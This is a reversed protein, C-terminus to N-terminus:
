KDLYSSTTMRKAVDSNEKTVIASGDDTETIRFNVNTKASFRNIDARLNLFRGCIHYIQSEGPPIAGLAFKSKPPINQKSWEKKDVSDPIRHIQFESNKDYPTHWVFVFNAGSTKEAFHSVARWKVEDHKPFVIVDGVLMDHIPHTKSRSM